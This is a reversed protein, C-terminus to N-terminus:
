VVFQFDAIQFFNQQQDGNVCSKGGRVGRKVKGLLLDRPPAVPALRGFALEGNWEPSLQGYWLRERRLFDYLELALDKMGLVLRRVPEKPSDTIRPMVRM